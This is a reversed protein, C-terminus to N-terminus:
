RVTPSIAFEKDTRFTAIRAEKKQLTIDIAGDDYTALFTAGITRYISATQGEGRPRGQNSIAVRPRAWAALSSTNALRSGHHPAMFVDIPPPRLQMVMEQGADELDGTLLIRLADKRIFMVLSRANEKGAPGVAPPHLVDLKVDDVSESDGAQVVRIEIGRLEIEELMRRVGPTGRQSFSPTLAIQRVTIRDLLDPVGNFHDLDAHSIFLEDVSLINRSLLYPVIVRRTVDPGTMAGADYMLVRGASTEIVTCGGHGVSLFTVRFEASRFWGLGFALGLLLWGGAFSLRLPTRWAPRVILLTMAIYFVALWPWPITGITFSAGPVRLGLDITTECLWLSADTIWAFPAALPGLLPATLLLLFGSVIAVSTTFVVPPGILLAIPSVVHFREAVLPTVGLWVIASAAYAMGLWKFITWTWRFTTPLSDDTMASLPDTEARTGTWPNVLWELLAVALFSLQCGTQLIDAPNILIVGIWAAALANARSPKRRAFVAVSLILVIWAARMAPPRGGTLLAYTFLVSAIGVTAPTLRIFLARRVVALFAALVVLHQGSIALAHVVGSKLFKDWEPRTLQSGDGLLLAAALAPEVNLQEKLIQVCAAHTRGLWGTLSSPWRHAILRVADGTEPLSLIAVVGQDRLERGIDREGPNSPGRPVVLRGRAVIEDGPYLENLTGAAFAVIRGNAPEDGHPGILDTVDILLKTVAPRPFTQLPDDNGPLNQLNAALRGRLEVPTGDSTALRSLNDSVLSEHRLRHYAAALSAVAVLLCAPGVGALRRDVLYFVLSTAGLAVSFTLPIALSRDAVIGITAAIAVWVLPVNKPFTCCM